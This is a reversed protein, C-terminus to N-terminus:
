YYASFEIIISDGRSSFEQFSGKYSSTANGEKILIIEETESNIKLEYGKVPTNEGIPWSEEAIEKLTFNLVECTNQGDLCIGGSNCEIILDQVSYYSDSDERCDTTYSLFAQIFSNVENVGLVEKKSKNLSVSLFVLLVIAVIILILAFGVMEEQAKKPLGKKDKIKAREM